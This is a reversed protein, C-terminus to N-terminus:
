EDGVSWDINNSRMFEVLVNFKEDSCKVTITRNEVKDLDAFPDDLFPDDSFPVEEVDESEDSVNSYEEIVPEQTTKREVEVRENKEQEIRELEAQKEREAREQKLREKEAARRENENHVNESILGKIHEVDYVELLSVYADSSINMDNEANALKVNTEIVEIDAARKDQEMKLNKIMFEISEKAVKDSVSKALLSDDIEVQDAFEKDLGYEKILDNRVSILGDLKDQREQEVFAKLQDNLPNIVEDFYKNLSKCKEEFKLVPQNLERKIKKRYEDVAKKGKRLEALTGRLETTSESTFTLGEYKKLNEQLEREINEHNFEIVAPEKKITQVQLENM